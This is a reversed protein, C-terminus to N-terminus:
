RNREEDRPDRDSMPHCMYHVKSSMYFRHLFVSLTM